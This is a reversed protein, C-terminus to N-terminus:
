TQTNTHSHTLTSTLHESLHTDRAWVQFINDVHIRPADEDVIPDAYRGMMRYIATVISTMEQLTIFLNSGIHLKVTVINTMELFTILINSGVYLHVTM